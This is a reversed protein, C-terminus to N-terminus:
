INSLIPLVKVFLVIFCTLAHYFLGKLMYLSCCGINAWEATCPIGPGQNDMM